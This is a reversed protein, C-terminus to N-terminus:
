NQYGPDAEKACSMQTERNEFGGERQLCAIYTEAKRQAEGLATEPKAGDVMSSFAQSLWTYSPMLWFEFTWSYPRAIHDMSALYAEVTEPGVAARFTPSEAASRRAPLGKRIEMAHHSLFRLWQWCAQPHPSEKSIFYGGASWSRFAKSGFPLAAVGLRFDEPLDLSSSDGGTAVWMAVRGDRILSWRRQWGSVDAQSADEPFPISLGDAALDAYWAMTEVVDQADFRPWFPDTSEDFLSAGKLGVFTAASDPSNSLALYGHQKEDDEGMTLAKATRVFDDLDWVGKSRNSTVAPPYPMEAADFLDKNYHLVTTGIGSPLAWLDGRWRFIELTPPYFDDLPFAPEAAILPALNLVYELDSEHIGSRSWEFCDSSSATERLNFGEEFSPMMVEVSIKPHAEQFSEALSRYTPLDAHSAAFDILVDGAPDPQPTNVLVPSPTTQTQGAGSALVAEAQAEALASEADAEGNLVVEVADNLLYTVDHLPKQILAHDLAYRYTAAVDEDLGEWYDIEEAMSRRPPLYSVDFDGVGQHRSLFSLWRWAEQPYATGASMAYVPWPWIPTTTDNQDEVPYPVMGVERERNRWGFSESVDSWMAAKGEAILNMEPPQSAGDPRKLHPMVHHKRHLDAYWHLAEAVEPRDLSPSVTAVSRDVLSDVRGALFPIPNSQAEVYGWRTVADGERETLALAKELFENWTWDATPYDVGAADFAQKDYFILHVRIQAPVGWTGGDWQLSELAGPYFDEPRFHSDAEIFPQLDRFLGQRTAPPNVAWALTDAASALRQTFGTPLSPEKQDLGLLEEISVIHVVIDPNAEHFAEAAAEYAAKQWDYCAFSIVVPEVTATPARPATCATLLLALIIWTLRLGLWWRGRGTKM